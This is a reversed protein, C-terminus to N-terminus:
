EEVSIGKLIIDQMLLFKPSDKRIAIGLWSKLTKGEYYTYNKQFAASKQLSSHMDVYDPHPMYILDPKQIECLAEPDFAKRSVKPDHLGSLDYITNQPAMAGIIGLETSAFTLDKGLHVFQPLYAWNNRGLEQYASEISMKGWNSRINNPKFNWTFYGIAGFLILPFAVLAIKNIRAFRDLATLTLPRAAARLALFVLVPWAPYLFRNHYGMIPRLWFGHYLLFIILGLILAADSLPFERRWKKPFHFVLPLIIVSNELLFLILLKWGHGAYAARIGSDESLGSKVYFSLPLLSGFGSLCAAMLLVITASTFLLVYASMKRIKPRKDFLLRIFPLLIPFVLLDPRIIWGLGGLVGLMIARNPSLKNEIEFYLLLYASIWAMAMSTDMGSTFHVSIPVVSLGAGLLYISTNASSESNSKEVLSKLRYLLVFTVIGWFLSGLWLSLPIEGGFFRLATIWIGYAVSTLGYTPAEGQNWAFSGTEHWNDAYRAFFYADDWISSASFRLLINFVLACLVVLMSLNLMRDITNGTSGLPSSKRM